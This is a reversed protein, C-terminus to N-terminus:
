FRLKDRITEFLSNFVAGTAGFSAGPYDGSWNWTSAFIDFHVMPGDLFERLFHAAVNSGGAINANQPLRGMNTLHSNKGKNAWKFPLFDEQFLFQEGNLKARDSLAQKFYEPAFFVPTTYGTFQRLSATTLTAAVLTLQPNFVQEGYSLADALILRGEADTHEVAVSFGKHSRYIAGPKMSKQAVLNECSPIVLAIPKDYRSKVLAMFLNAMLAAGGMDNKMCNVFGEFPKVNIGGTDFTIGKGVLMLPRDGPNCNASLLYCRSPSIDSAQGVALLLNMGERRLDDEKMVQFTCGHHKAFKELEEGIKLSTMTDPNENVWQRFEQNYYFRDAYHPQTERVQDLSDVLVSYSELRSFAAEPTHCSYFLDEAISVQLPALKEGALYVKLAKINAFQHKLRKLCQGALWRKELSKKGEETWRLIAFPHRSDKAFGSFVKLYEIDRSMVPIAEQELAIIWNPISSGEHTIVLLLEDEKHYDQPYEPGVANWNLSMM